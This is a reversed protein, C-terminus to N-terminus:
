ALPLPSMRTMDEEDDTCRMDELVCRLVTAMSEYVRRGEDSNNELQKFAFVTTTRQLLFCFINHQQCQNKKEERVWTFAKITRNLFANEVEEPIMQMRAMCDLIYTLTEKPAQFSLFVLTVRHAKVHDVVYNESNRMESVKGLTDLFIEADSNYPNIDKAQQISIVPEKLQELWSWMLGTLIFPDREM